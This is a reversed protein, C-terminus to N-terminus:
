REWLKKILAFMEPDFELLEGRVFPYMDNTDFYAETLEAFFEQDNNMAYAKVHRGNVHLVSDYKKSELAKQYAAKLESHDYGLVQDHYAHAMEHIVMAPQEKSWELFNTANGIHICKAKRSDVGHEKLWDISPHYVGAPFGPHDADLWIEVKQLSELAKKPLKRSAEFLKMDLLDIADRGAPNKGDLLQKHIYVTWGRMPKCVYDEATPNSALSIVQVFILIIGASVIKKMSFYREDKIQNISYCYSSKGWNDFLFSLHFIPTYRPKRLNQFYSVM